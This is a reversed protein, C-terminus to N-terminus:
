THLNLFVESTVNIFPYNNRTYKFAVFKFLNGFMKVNSDESGEM